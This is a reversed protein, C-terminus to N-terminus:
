RADGNRSRALWRNCKFRSLPSIAAPAIVCSTTSSKTTTRAGSRNASKEVVAAAEEARVETTGGNAVSARGGEVRTEGERGCRRKM